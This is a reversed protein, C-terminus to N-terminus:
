TFVNTIFKDGRTEGATGMGKMHKRGRGGGEGEEKRKAIIGEDRYRDEHRGKSRCRAPLRTYTGERVPDDIM